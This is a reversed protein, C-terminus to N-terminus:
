LTDLRAFEDPYIEKGVRELTEEYNWETSLPKWNYGDLLTHCSQNLALYPDHIGLEALPIDTRMLTYVGFSMSWLSFCITEPHTASPLDGQAMGDRAVGAFINMCRQELSKLRVQREQSTKERFSALRMMLCSRLDDPFLRAFLEDGVCMALIRERTRGKFLAGRHFLEFRKEMVQISLAMLIEEKCSFHQYITGKSYETKHAVRDMTLGLYGKSLMLDRAVKLILEEREKKERIKRASIGMVLSLIVSVDFTTLAKSGLLFAM